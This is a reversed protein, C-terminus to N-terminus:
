APVQQAYKLRPELWAIVEKSGQGYYPRNLTIVFLTDTSDLYPALLDYMQKPSLDTEVAYSSESLKAWAFQKMQKYLDAYDQGPKNLDYTILLVSM